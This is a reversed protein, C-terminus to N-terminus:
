LPWLWAAKWKIQQLGNRKGSANFENPVVWVQSPWASHSHCLVCVEKLVASSLLKAISVRRHAPTVEPDKELNFFFIWNLQPNKKLHFYVCAPRQDDAHYHNNNAFALVNLQQGPRDPWFLKDAVMLKLVVQLLQLSKVKLVSVPVVYLAVKLVYSVCSILCEIVDSM